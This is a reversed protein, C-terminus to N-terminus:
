SRLLASDDVNLRRRMKANDVTLMISLLIRFRARQSAAGQACIAFSRDHPLSM